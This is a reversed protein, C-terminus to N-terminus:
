SELRAALALKIESFVTTWDGPTKQRFLRMTPYWPSDSRDLLWRWDPAFPLALWVPVGLAGALHPISTDSTIVLDLNVMIAATDMFAGHEKDVDEGPDFISQLAAHALDSRGIGQQLSVLRVGPLDAISAFCELPIDRVRAVALDQRGRWNIGIRFGPRDPGSPGPSRQTIRDGCAAQLRLRWHAVLGSEAFLYPVKAPITELKTQFMRPLSLLPAQFDFDPLEDGEGIVEDEAAACSRLLRVLPRQCEVLVKAGLAKVMAAYRVFQITDGLGQEAYLLIANGALAEGAWSPQRFERAPQRGTKWRWEHEAWGREFDGELLMLLAQNWRASAYDPKLELARRFCEAAERRKGQGLLVSGLNNHGEIYEPKLEIARRYCAAAEDLNGQAQFITGLNGHAAAWDPRSELVRRYYDSAEDWLGQSNLVNGLNYMAETYDPKLDLARRYCDAAQDLLGQERLVLGLNNHAEAFRPNLSLARGLCEAAMAHQGSQYVATGLLHWAQACTPEAALIQRYIEAAEALRGAQHLSLAIALSEPVTSM